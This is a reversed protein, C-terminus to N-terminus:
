PDYFHFDALGAGLTLTIPTDFGGPNEVPEFSRPCSAGSEQLAQDREGVAEWCASTEAEEEADQPDEFIRCVEPTDTYKLCLEYERADLESGGVREM